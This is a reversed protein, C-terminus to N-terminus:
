CIATQSEQKSIKLFMREFEDLSLKVNNVSEIEVTSNPAQTYGPEGVSDQNRYFSAEDPTSDPIGFAGNDMALTEEQGAFFEDSYLNEKLPDLSAVDYADAEPPIYNLPGHRNFDYLVSPREIRFPAGFFWGHGVPLPANDTLEKWDAVQQLYLEINQKVYPLFAYLNVYERLLKLAYEDDTMYAREIDRRVDPGSAFILHVLDGKKMEKMAEVGPTFGGEGLSILWHVKDGPAGEADSLFYRELAKIAESKSIFTIEDVPNTPSEWGRLLHQLAEQEQQQIRNLEIRSPATWPIEVRTVDRPMLSEEYAHEAEEQQAKAELSAKEGETQKLFEQSSKFMEFNWEWGGQLFPSLTSDPLQPVRHQYLSTDITTDQSYWEQIDKLSDELEAMIRNTEAEARTALIDSPVEPLVIEGRLARLQENSEALYEALVEDEQKTEEEEEVELISPDQAWGFWYYPCGPNPLPDPYSRWEKEQEQQSLRKYYERYERAHKVYNENWYEVSSSRARNSSNFDSESWNAFNKPEGM